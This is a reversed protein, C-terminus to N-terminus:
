AGPVERQDPCTIVHEPGTCHCTPAPPGTPQDIWRLVAIANSLTLDHGREFRGLSSFAVGIQEAADRLNLGRARRTERVIAPLNGLVALIASHDEAM